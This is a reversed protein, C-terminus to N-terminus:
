HCVRYFHVHRYQRSRDQASALDSIDLRQFHHTLGHRDALCDDEVTRYLMIAGDTSTRLIRDLLHRQTPEPLWDPMDCLTYHSWTNAGANDLLNFINRRHYSVRTPAHLSTAHRDSRLYPPVAEPHGHNFHGVIGMWAFWNTDLNTDAMRRMHHLIFGVMSSQEEAELMRDRQSYNVGLSVLQIPSSVFAKVYPRDFVPAIVADITRVRSEEDQGMLMHMLHVDSGVMKRIIKITSATLGKEYFNERFRDRHRRWYSSVWRPMYATLPKIVKWPKAVRGHGLLQYFTDYSTLRQAATIKLASLALHHGNIDVVDLSRPRRSVMGAVGCGAGSISLVRSDEDINLYREDVEADEYLINYVFLKSFARQFTLDRLRM